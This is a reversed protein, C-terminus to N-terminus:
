PSSGLFGWGAFVLLELGLVPLLVALQIVEDLFFLEVLLVDCGKVFIVFADVGVGHLTVLEM